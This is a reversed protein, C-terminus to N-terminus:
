DNRLTNIIDIRTIHHAPFSSALTCITAIFCTVLFFMLPQVTNIFELQPNIKYCLLFSATLGIVLGWFVLHGSQSVIAKVIKLSNAGLAMRIGYEKTRQVVMYNTLGYIGIGTLFSAILAFFLTLTMSIRHMSTAFKFVEDFTESQITLTPNDEALQGQINRRALEVDGKVHLIFTTSEPNPNVWQNFPTYLTFHRRELFFPLSQVEEAVGIIKLTKGRYHITQGLPSVGEYYKTVMNEDIIAVAESDFNDSERFDRGQILRTEVTKFYGPTTTVDLLPIRTEGKAYEYHGMTFEGYDQNKHSLPIKSTAATSIVNPMSNLNTLIREQHPLLRLKYDDEDTGFLYKPQPIELAIKGEKTYGVPQKFIAGLNQLLVYSVCLLIVSLAIQSIVFYSHLKQRAPGGITRSGSKIHKILNKKLISLLPIFGTVLAAALTIELTILISGTDLKWEDAWPIVSMQFYETLYFGLGLILFSFSGGIFFYLLIEILLQRYIRGYSAGLCQRMAFEQLRSYGSVLFMGGINLCGILLVVLTVYKVTEFAIKIQPIDKSLFKNLEVAGLNSGTSEYEDRDEPFRESFSDWMRELDDNVQAVSYGDKIRAISMYPLNNRQYDESEWPEFMRPIWADARFYGLHFNRPAVGIVTYSTDDLIFTEGILDQGEGRLENWLQEGLVIVNGNTSDLDDQQFFRGAIPTVKTISWVEPTIRDTEIRKVKNGLNLDYNVQDNIFGVSELTTTNKKIHYYLPISIRSIKDGELKEFKKGLQVIRKSEKFAYPNSVISKSFNIATTTSGICIALTLIIVLTQVKNKFLQRLGYHLDTLLEDVLRTGWNVHCEEKLSLTGGFAKRAEFEAVKRSMGSEMKKEISMELHFHIEDDLEQDSRKGLILKKVTFGLQKLFNM